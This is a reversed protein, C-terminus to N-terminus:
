VCRSTYLLCGVLRYSFWGDAEATMAVGPWASGQAHPYSNWYHIYVTDAWDAPKHFHVILEPMALCGPPTSLADFRSFCLGCDLHHGCCEGQRKYVDLHTYSVTGPGDLVYIGASNGQVHFSIQGHHVTIENGTVADRYHGNHIGGVSIDQGGGITLGVVAYSEGNNFDRVFSLGSGWENVHSM